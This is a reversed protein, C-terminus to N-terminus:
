ATEFGRTKMWRNRSFWFAMLLGKLVSSSAIAWWVGSPGWGLKVALVYALPIRLATLPTCIVLAPLSNSVGSFAGTLVIELFGITWCAGVIRLYESCIAVVEADDIFFRVIPEIAFLMVAVLPLIAVFCYLCTKWVARAADEFKGAGIYQGALTTAAMSFGVAVFYPFSEIRHGLGIAAVSASGFSSIVKTLGVYIMSFLMGNSAIPLGVALIRGFWKRQLNGRWRRTLDPFFGRRHLLWAGLVLAVAHCIVSAWAAGAVGLGEFPGVGWILLPDLWVNVAVMVLMLRLPTSTDGLGRFAALVPFVLFILPMSVFWPFVYESASAVVEPELGVLSFIWDRLPLMIAALATGSVFAVVLCHRLRNRVREVKDAGVAQALLTQSAVDGIEGISFLSWLVFSVATVSALPEAGLKGVWFADVIHYLSEALMMLSSPIAMKAIARALPLETLNIHTKDPNM